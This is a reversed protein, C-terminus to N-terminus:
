MKRSPSDAVRAGDPRCHIRGHADGAGPAVGEVRANLKGMGMKAVDKTCEHMLAASFLRDPFRLFYLNTMM